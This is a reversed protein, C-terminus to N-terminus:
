GPDQAADGPVVGHEDDGPRLIDGGVDRRVQEGQRVRGRTVSDEPRAGGWGDGMWM